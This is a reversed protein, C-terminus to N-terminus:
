GLRVIALISTSLRAPPSGCRPLRSSRPRRVRPGRQAIAYDTRREIVVELFEDGIALPVGTRDDLRVRSGVSLASGRPLGITVGLEGQSNDIRAKETTVRLVMHTAHRDTDGCDGALICRLARRDNADLSHRWREDFVMEVVASCQVPEYSRLRMCIRMVMRPRELGGDQRTSIDFLDESEMRVPAPSACADLPLRARSVPDLCPVNVPDHRQRQPFAPRENTGTRM